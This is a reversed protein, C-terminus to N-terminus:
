GAGTRARRTAPAESPSSWPPGPRTPRSRRGCAASPSTWWGRIASTTTAGSWTSCITAPSCRARDGRGAGRAPRVGDPHAPDPATGSSPAGSCPRDALAWRLVPSGGDAGRSRAAAAARGPARAVLEPMEFPKRVYDDAGSELGVVVDITDARATLMVVPTRRRAASRASVELGDVRPLMVDLLVLDPQRDALPRSGRRRRRRHGRHVRCRLGLATVERISPDDEVLLIRADVGGTATALGGTEAKGTTADGARAATRGLHRLPPRGRPSGHRRGNGSM